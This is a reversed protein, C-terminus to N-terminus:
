NVSQLIANFTIWKTSCDNINVLIQNFSPVMCSSSSVLVVSGKGYSESSPFISLVVMSGDMLEASMRQPLPFVENLWPLNVRCLFMLEKQDEFENLM